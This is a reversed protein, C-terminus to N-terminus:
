FVGGRAELYGEMGEMGLGALMLFTMRRSM